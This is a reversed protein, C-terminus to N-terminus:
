RLKVGKGHEKKVVSGTFTIHIIIQFDVPKTKYCLTNKKNEKNYQENWTPTVRNLIRQLLFPFLSYIYVCLFHFCVVSLGDVHRRREIRKM